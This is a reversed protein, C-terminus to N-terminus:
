SARGIVRQACFEDLAAAPIRIARGSAGVCYARLQGGQIARYLTSEHVRLRAAAEPVTHPPRDDASGPAASLGSEVLALAVKLVAPSVAAEV